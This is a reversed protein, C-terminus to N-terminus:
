IDALVDGTVAECKGSDRDDGATEADLLFDVLVM